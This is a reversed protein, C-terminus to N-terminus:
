RSIADPVNITGGSGTGDAHLSLTTNAAMGITGGSPVSSVATTGLFQLTGGNITTSGNYSNSGALAQVGGGVKVISGNGSINASSVNNYGNNGVSLGVGTLIGNSLVLNGGGTLGGLTAATLTGFSVQGAGSTDLASNLLANAVGLALTGGSVLTNGTFTNAGSLYLTGSGTTTLSGPGSLVGSYSTNGNNGVTLAVPIPFGTFNTSLSINNGGSLGGLTFAAGPVSNDFVLAGGALTLTSNQLALGNSLNLSGATVTTTGSYTNAASLTVTKAGNVTIGYGLGADSIVGALVINGSTATVAQSGTLQMALGITQTATSSNIIPGSIQISNGSLNFAGAGSQFSIGAANLSAIDNTNSLGVTGAFVVPLGNTPAQNAAWNATNSWVFAPNGGGNWVNTSTLVAAAITLDVATGGSSFFTYTFGANPNLVSLNTPLGNVVGFYDMLTYTGPTAFQTTNGSTDFLDIGGGNITLGSPNVINLLDTSGSSSFQYKLISGPSLTLSGVSLTGASNAALGGPLVIAGSAVTMGGNLISNGTGTLTQGSLLTYAGAKALVDFTAGSALSIKPSSSISGSASLFLTGSQINTNGTYTNVANLTVSGPGIMAVAGTGSIAYSATSSGFINYALVASNTVASTNSNSISGDQGNLGTGLQLTGGSISTPGHYTNAGALIWQSSNSKTIRTDGSGVIAFADSIQGYIVNGASTGDLILTDFGGTNTAIQNTVNGRIAVSTSNPVLKTNQGSSGALALSAFSELYGNAGTFTITTNLDNASTGNSLAGFAVTNGTNGSGNNGVNITPTVTASVVPPNTAITVNGLSITGGSGAGDNHITLTASGLSIASSGPLSPAGLFQATGGFISTTGTYTDTGTLALTGNGIKSLSGPGQLTGSFTGTSNNNGVSLAVAAGGSTALTLNGGNILGGLTASTLGGFSVGGAGSTDLTSNQLASANGLTLVGGSVLTNGNYTNAGNLLLTGAGTQTLGFPGSMVGGVTLSNSAINLAANANLTVAGTGLNLPQASGVYTFGGNWVMPHNPLALTGGSTNDISGGNITFTSAAAGIAASNGLNLLGSYLYTGGTYTNPNNITLTGGGNMALM